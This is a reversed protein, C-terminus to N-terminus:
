VTVAKVKNCVNQVYDKADAFRKAHQPQNVTEGNRKWYIFYLDDVGKIVVFFEGQGDKLMQSMYTRPATKTWAVKSPKVQSQVAEHVEGISISM